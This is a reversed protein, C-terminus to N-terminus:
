EENKYDAEAEEPDEDDFSYEMKKNRDNMFACAIEAAYVLVGALGFVLVFLWIKKKKEM